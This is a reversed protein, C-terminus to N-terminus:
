TTNTKVNYNMKYESKKNVDAYCHVAAPTCTTTRTGCNPFEYTLGHYSSRCEWVDKLKTM